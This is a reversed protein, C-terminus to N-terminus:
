DYIFYIFKLYNLKKVNLKISNKKRDDRRQRLLLRKNKQKQRKKANKIIFIKSNKLEKINTINQIESAYQKENLYNINIIKNQNKFYKLLKDHRRM